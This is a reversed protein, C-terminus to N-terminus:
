YKRNELGYVQNAELNVTDKLKKIELKIVDYLVHPKEKKKILKLSAERRMSCSSIPPPLSVSSKRSNELATKDRIEEELKQQEDHSRDGQMRSVKREM